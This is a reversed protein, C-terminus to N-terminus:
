NMFHFLFSFRGINLVQLGKIDKEETEFFGDEFYRIGDRGRSEVPKFVIIQLVNSSLLLRRFESSRTIKPSLNYIAQLKNRAVYQRTTYYSLDRKHYVYQEIVQIVIICVTISQDSDYRLICPM